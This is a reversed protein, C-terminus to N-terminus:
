GAGALARRRGAWQHALRLWTVVRARAAVLLGLRVAVVALILLGTVGESVQGYPTLRDVLVTMAIAAAVTRGIRAEGAVLVVLIVIVTQGLGFSVSSVFRDQVAYLAGALGAIGAGVAFALLRLRGVPVAFAQAAVEDDRAALWARGLPSHRMAGVALLTVLGLGLAVAYLGRHDVARGLVTVPPIGAIGDSGQTFRETNLYLAQLIEGAGLTVLALVDGRVRLGPLGVVAGVLAALVVALPLSSWFSWGSTTTLNAIAYAGIGQLPAHAVSLQGSFGYTVQYGLALVAAIVATTGLGFGRRGGIWVPVLAAVLLAVVPLVVPLWRRVAAVASRM